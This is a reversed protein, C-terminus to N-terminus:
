RITNPRSKYWAKYETSLIQTGSSMWLVAQLIRSDFHYWEPLVAQLIRSDFHYWHRRRLNAGVAWGRDIQVDCIVLGIADIRSTWFSIKPVFIKRQSSYYFLPVVPIKTLYIVFLKLKCVWPRTSCLIGSLYCWPYCWVRRSRHGVFWCYWDFPRSPIASLRRCTWWIAPNPRWQRRSAMFVDNRIISKKRHHRIM